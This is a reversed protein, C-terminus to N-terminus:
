QRANITISGAYYMCCGEIVTTYYLATAPRVYQLRRELDSVVPRGVM